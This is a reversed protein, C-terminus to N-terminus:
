RIKGTPGHLFRLDLLLLPLLFYGGLLVFYYYRWNTTGVVILLAAVQILIVSSFIASLPFWRGLVISLPFLYLLWFPNWSLYVWPYELSGAYLKLATNRLTPLPHRDPPLYAYSDNWGADRLFGYAYRDAIYYHWFDSEHRNRRIDLLRPYKKVASLVLDGTSSLSMKHLYQRSLDKFYSAGKISSPPFLALLVICGGTVLGAVLLKRPLTVLRLGAFLMPLAIVYVMGNHRFLLLAIFLLVLLLVVTPSIKLAKHKQYFYGPVLGWFVVLLAFPIDKWLTLNYLCVPLSLLLLIYCPLLVVLRVGQQQCFSFTVALLLSLLLIQSVPVVAINNWVHQLFMYWFVNIAPHNNIMVDPLWAARWINLSDVSMVGPWFVLLWTGYTVLAGIFFFRFWRLQRGLLFQKLGGYRAVIGAGTSILLTVLLAFLIQCVFRGPVFYHKVLRSPNDLLLQNGPGKHFPLALLKGAKTKLFVRDVLVGDPCAIVMSNIRYRPMDTFVSFHGAVDVFWFDIRKQLVAWNSQYLDVDNIAGDISFRAIGSSSNVKLLFGIHNKLPGQFVFQSCAKEFFWPTGTSHRVCHLDQEPISLGKDDVRVETLVLRSGSSRANKRAGGVLAIRHRDQGQLPPPLLHFIRSEYSNLGNGSDWQVVVDQGTAQTHGEIVLRSAAYWGTGVVFYILICCFLCFYRLLLRYGASSSLPFRVSM